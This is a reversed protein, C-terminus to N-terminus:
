ISFPKKGCFMLHYNACIVSELFDTIGFFTFLVQMFYCIVTLQLGAPSCLLNVYRKLVFYQRVRIRVVIMFVYLNKQNIHLTVRLTLSFSAISILYVNLNVHGDKRYFFVTHMNIVLIKVEFNRPLPREHNFLM